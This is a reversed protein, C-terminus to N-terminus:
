HKFRIKWKYELNEPVPITNASADIINFYFNYSTESGFTTTTLPTFKIMGTSAATISLIGATSTDTRFTTTSLTATSKMLLEVRTIGTLDIATESSLLQFSIPDESGIRTTIDFRTSM